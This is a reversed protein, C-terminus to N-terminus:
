YQRDIDIVNKLPRGEVFAAYNALFHPVVDEPVLPGCIHPTVTVHPNEWFPHDPPLPETAFVDLTAHGILQADIARLLAPEDIVGGRGVNVIHTGRRCRAFLDDTFLNKTEKTLPLVLILVDSNGVFRPLDPNGVFVQDVCPCDRRSRRWGLVRAGLGHVKEALASGIEGLGAIGVTLDRITGVEFYSWKRKQQQARATGLHLTQEIIAALVYEAMRPAILEGATRTLAVEPGFPWYKIIEDVGAGMKQVWRLRPMRKLIEPPFGWGYLICADALHPAAEEPSTACHIPVDPLGRALLQEFRPIDSAYVSYVLIPGEQLM